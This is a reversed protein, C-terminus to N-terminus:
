KKTRRLWKDNPFNAKAGNMIAARVNEGDLEVYNGDKYFRILDCYFSYFVVVTDKGKVFQVAVDALFMSEKVYDKVVFSEPASLANVIASIRSEDKDENSNLEEAVGCFFDDAESLADLLYWTVTSKTSIAKLYEAPVASSSSKEPAKGIVQMTMIMVLSLLFLKKM